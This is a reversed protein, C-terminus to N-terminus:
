AKPRDRGLALPQVPDFAAPRPQGSEVWLLGERCAAIPWFCDTPPYAQCVTTM